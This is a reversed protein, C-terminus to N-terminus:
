KSKVSDISNTIKTIIDRKKEKKRKEKKGKKRKILNMRLDTLKLSSLFRFLFRHVIARHAGASRIRDIQFM